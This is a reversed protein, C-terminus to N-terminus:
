AAAEKAAAAAKGQEQKKLYDGIAAQIADEALM